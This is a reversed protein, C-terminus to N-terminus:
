KSKYGSCNDSQCFKHYYGSYIYDCKLKTNNFHICNKGKRGQKAHKNSKSKSNKVFLISSGKINGKKRKGM